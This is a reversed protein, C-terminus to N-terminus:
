ESPSRASVELLEGRATLMLCRTDSAWLILRAPPDLDVAAQKLNNLHLRILRGGARRGVASDKAAVTALLWLRDSSGLAVDWIPATQDWRSSLGAFSREWLSLGDSVSIRGDNAFWCPVFAGAALGCNVLNYSLQDDRKATARNLLGPWPHVDLPQRPPSSQLAPTSVVTPLSQFLLRAGSSFLGVRPLSLSQREAVRGQANLRALARPSALTWLSGDALCALGWPRDTPFLGQVGHVTIARSAVTIEVLQASQLLLWTAGQCTARGVILSDPIRGASKVRHQAFVEAFGNRPSLLTSAAVLAFVELM